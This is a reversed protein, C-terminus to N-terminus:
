DIVVWSVDARGGGSTITLHEDGSLVWTSNGAREINNAIFSTESNVTVTFTRENPNHLYLTAGSELSRELSVGSRPYTHVVGLTLSNTGTISSLTATGSSVEIDFEKHSEGQDDVYPLEDHWNTYDFSLGLEEGKDFIDKTQQQYGDRGTEVNVARLWKWHTPLSLDVSYSRCRDLLMNIHDLDAGVGQSPYNADALVEPALELNTSQLEKFVNPLFTIGSPQDRDNENTSSYCDELYPEIWEGRLVMLAVEARTLTDPTDGKARNAAYNLLYTKSPDLVTTGDELLWSQGDDPVQVLFGGGEKSYSTNGDWYNPSGFSAASGYKQAAGEVTNVACRIWRNDTAKNNRMAKSVGTITTGTEYITCDEIDVRPQGNIVIGKGCHMLATNRFLTRGDYSEGVVSAQNAPQALLGEGEDITLHTYKKSFVHSFFYSETGYILCGDVKNSHETVPDSSPKMNVFGIATTGSITWRAGNANICDKITINSADKCAMTQSMVDHLVCDRFEINSGGIAIGNGNYQAEEQWWSPMVKEYSAFRAEGRWEIGEFRVNKVDAVSTRFLTGNKGGRFTVRENGWPKIVLMKGDQVFLKLTPCTTTGTDPLPDEYPVYGFPRQEEDYIYTGGRLYITEVTSEFNSARNDTRFAKFTNSYAFSTGDFTGSGNKPGDPAMWGAQTLDEAIEADAVAITFTRETAGNTIRITQDGVQDPTPTWRMTGTQNGIALGVPGELINFRYDKHWSVKAEFPQGVTASSVNTSDSLAIANPDGSFYQTRNKKLSSLITKSRM